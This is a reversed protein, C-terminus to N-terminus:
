QHFAKSGHPFTCNNAGWKMTVISEVDTKSGTNEQIEIAYDKVNYFDDDAVHRLYPRAYLDQGCIM